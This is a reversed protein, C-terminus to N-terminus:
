KSGYVERAIKRINAIIEHSAKLMPMTAETGYSHHPAGTDDIYWWGKPDNAHTQGPYTGVGYGFKDAHAVSSNENYHIGAGFEIFLIDQGELVLRAEAYDGYRHLVIHTYHEKDSDGMSAGINTEIIPIGLEGLRRVFIENKDSLSAQYDKLKQIADNVSKSSLNIKINM